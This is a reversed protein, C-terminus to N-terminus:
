YIPRSKKYYLFWHIMFLFLEKAYFLESFFKTNM